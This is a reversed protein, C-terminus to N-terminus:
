SDTTSCFCRSEPTIWDEFRLGHIHTRSNPDLWRLCIVSLPVDNWASILGGDDPVVMM